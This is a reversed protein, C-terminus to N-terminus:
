SSLLSISHWTIFITTGFTIFFKGDKETYFFMVCFLCFAWFAASLFKLLEESVEHSFGRPLTLPKLFWIGFTLTEQVAYPEPGIM